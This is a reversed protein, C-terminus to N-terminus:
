SLWPAPHGTTVIIQQSDAGAFYQDRKDKFRGWTPDVPVWGIGPLYVELWDHRPDIQQTTGPKYIVGEVFRAPIGAVRCLAIM